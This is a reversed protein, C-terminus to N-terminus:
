QHVKMLSKAVLTQFHIIFTPNVISGVAPDHELKLKSDELIMMQESSSRGLVLIGREKVLIRLSFWGTLWCGAIGFAWHLVPLEIILQDEFAEICVSWSDILKFVFALIRVWDRNALENIELSGTLRKLRSCNMLISQHIRWTRTGAAWQTAQSILNSRSPHAVNLAKIVIMM